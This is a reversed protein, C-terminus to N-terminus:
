RSFVAGHPIAPGTDGHPWSEGRMSVGLGGEEGFGQALALEGTAPDIELLVVMGRLAAGGGTLVIRNGSPELSIWHPTVDGGFVLEDVQTPQSPDSIDFVVISHTPDSTQVWFNEYVVPLSCEADGLEADAPRPLSGIFVVQPDESAIDTVRYMGCNFTNVIASGDALFRPEAPNLHEDGRPGPPLPLTHLLVLDGLSWIQVSRGEHEMSMDSTTTLVRDLEVSIALSYPRLEPDISDAADSGRMFKGLPDL